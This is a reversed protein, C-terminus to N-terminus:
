QCAKPLFRPPFSGGVCEWNLGSPGAGPAVRRGRLAITGIADPSGLNGLTYNITILGAGASFNVTTDSTFYESRSASVVMGIENLDTPVTGNLQYFESVRKRDDSSIAIFEALQSRVVYRSYAPIAIVALIGIIAVVIMLEILTFGRQRNRESQHTM